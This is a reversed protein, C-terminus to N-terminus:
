RLGLMGEKLKDSPPEPGMWLSLVAEAFERGEITGKEEGNFEAITSGDPTITLVIESGDEMDGFFGAFKSIKDRMSEYVDPSNNEFGEWWAKDMKKKTAKDTLFHMVVRKYEDSSVVQDASSTPTELYLGAVYVEIWLKKRVGMGNLQLTSDDITIEDPMTVGELEGAPAVSATLGVCLLVVLFGRHMACRGPIDTELM